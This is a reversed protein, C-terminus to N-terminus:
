MNYDSKEINEQKMRKEKREKFFLMAYEDGLGFWEKVVMM